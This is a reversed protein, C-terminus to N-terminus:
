LNPNFVAISIDDVWLAWNRNIVYKSWKRIEITEQSASARMNARMLSAKDQVGPMSIMDHSPELQIPKAPHAPTLSSGQRGIRFS